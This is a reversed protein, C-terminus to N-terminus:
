NLLLHGLPHNPFFQLLHLLCLNVLDGMPDDKTLNFEDLEEDVAKQYEKMDGLYEDMLAM